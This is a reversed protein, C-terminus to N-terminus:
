FKQWLGPLLAAGPTEALRAAGPAALRLPQAGPEEPGLAAAQQSLFMM